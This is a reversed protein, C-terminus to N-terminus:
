GFGNTFGRFYTLIPGLAIFPFFTLVALIFISSVLIISFTLSDTKIAAESPARRRDIMSGALALLLIIPVFRGVFMVVATSLNFFLTNGSAGLFDSGNNAAASAYEYLIQTFSVSDTGLGITSVAGSAYALVTPILIILPHVLFTIMVLKVDNATIKMGLYEPTRGSMLGVIFVTIIIYMILYMLGPGKGGPGAQIFMGMLASVITLPNMGLLGSNLSGTMTSTTIVTWLTSMFGGFRTEIDPGVLVPNPFFAIILNVALIAGVAFIVPISERKKGLMQGFVFTLAIPLLLMCVIELVNSAPSPNQFPYASNAGYYGGGNTGFQMISVLSAVPGVLITQAAGEVTKVTTYGTLTEPIGLWVFALSTVICLPVLLRTLSRVFDVYFNGLDKAKAVFGRIMAVAVCFGTAASTFQLFVVGSMQSLYSLTTEGNYHQLNTNTQFSIVQMLALHWSLGPFAQPNLPLSGQFVFIFFVLAMQFSNVILVAMVYEKWGMVHDPDVGILRYIFNDIPDFIRDLRTPTRNYLKTIYPSFLFALTFVVSFIIIIDLIQGPLLM